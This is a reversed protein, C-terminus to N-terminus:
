ALIFELFALTNDINVANHIIGLVVETDKFSYAEFLRCTEPLCIGIPVPDELDTDETYYQPLKLPANPDSELLYDLESQEVYVFYPKYTELQEATMVTRLDRFYASLTPYTDLDTIIFDLQQAAIQAVLSELVYFSTDDDTYYHGSLLSFSYEETSIQQQDMFEQTLDGSYSQSAANILYGSLAADKQQLASSIWSVAFAIVCICGLIAPWYYTFIYKLKASLPKDKLSKWQEARAEKATM